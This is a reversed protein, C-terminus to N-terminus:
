LNGLELLFSATFECGKMFAKKVFLAELDCLADVYKEVADQQDKNLLNNARQHLEITIETLKREEETDITCCEDLLYENWLKELTKKM